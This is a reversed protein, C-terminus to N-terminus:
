VKAALWGDLWAPFEVLSNLVVSAGAAALAAGGHPGTTVGVGAAKAVQAAAMDGPHDGVYLHAGSELLAVAKDAGFLGGHAVHVASALRTRVLAEQLVPTNKASVVLVTGGVSRVHALAEVAGPLPLDEPANPSSYHVRYRDSLEDSELHPVHEAWVVELPIGVAKWLVEDEIDVGVDALTKRYGYLIRARSDVLTMDLDFGVVLPSYM